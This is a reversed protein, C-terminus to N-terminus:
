MGTGLVRKLMPLNRRWLTKHLKRDKYMQGGLAKVYPLIFGGKQTKRRRRQRKKKRAPMTVFSSRTLNHAEKIAEKTEQPHGKELTEQCRLKSGRRSSGVGRSKRSSGCRTDTSSVSPHRRESTTPDKESYYTTQAHQSSHRTM